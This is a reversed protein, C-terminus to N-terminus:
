ASEEKRLALAYPVALLVVVAMSLLAIAAGPGLSFTSFAKKYALFPLTQTATGPGGQTLVFVFDFSRFAYLVTLVVLITVTPWLQPLVIRLQARWYSAGDIAAAELLDRPVSLMAGRLIVVSFPLSSWSAVGALTWVSLRPDSLWSVPDLGLGRLIANVAGDRDLVFKWVSGTVLTPLAWVFVMLGLLANNARGSASLVSAVVFGILLNVVLLVATFQLTVVTARATDPDALEARLNTLGTWPWSGVINTPGVDSFAMRVLVVLPYAALPVLIVLAPLLYVFPAGQGVRIRHRTTALVGPRGVPDGRTRTARDPPTDTLV